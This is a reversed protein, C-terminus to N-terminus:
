GSGADEPYWGLAKEILRRYPTRVQAPTRRVYKEASSRDGLSQLFAVVSPGSPMVGREGVFGCQLNTWVAATLRKAGAWQAVADVELGFADNSAQNWYGINKEAWRQTARDNERRALQMRATMVDPADIPVWCTQVRLSGQCLVLSIRDGRTGPGRAGSERAFEVPLMPGDYAWPGLCPLTGPNWVLSGWGICAITARDM